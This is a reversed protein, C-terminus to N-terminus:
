SFRLCLFLCVVLIQQETKDLLYLKLMIGLSAELKHHEQRLRRSATIVRAAM